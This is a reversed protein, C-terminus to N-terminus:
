AYAHCQRLWGQLLYVRIVDYPRVPDDLLGLGSDYMRSEETFVDILLSRNANVIGDFMFCSLGM